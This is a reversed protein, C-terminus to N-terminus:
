KPAEVAVEVNNFIAHQVVDGPQIDMKAAVGGNLELVGKVIMGPSIRRQSHPRANRAIAVIVGEDDLFLIDLPILTNKMWMNPERPVGFDFLMGADEALTERFMLGQTTEEASDAIEINFTLQSDDTKIVLSGTEFKVGGDQALAAPHGMAVVSLVALTSLLKKM